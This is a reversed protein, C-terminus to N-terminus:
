VNAAQEEKLYDSVQSANACWHPASRVSLDASVENITIHWCLPNSFLRTAEAEVQSEVYASVDGKVTNERPEMVNSGDFYFGVHTPLTKVADPPELPIPTHGRIVPAQYSRLEYLREAM